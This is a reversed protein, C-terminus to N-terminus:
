ALGKKRFYIAYGGVTMALDTEDLDQGYLRAAYEKVSNGIAEPPEGAKMHELILQGLAKTNEMAMGIIRDADEVAGGHSFFLKEAGLARLRQMTELYIDQDFSPPAVAPLPLPQPGRGPLGLAEGCFLGKAKRDFIVMHHPAHGPAFILQLDRGDIGVVEGDEAARVRSEPVPLVPGFREEFGAGWVTKTSEILNSPDVAHKAGRPHVVVTADPFLQALRGTGGAHDVHIHTPIIYRLDTMGLKTMAEQVVPLTSTPGPEIVAGERILYVSFVNKIGDIAPEIWFIGNAVEKAEVM